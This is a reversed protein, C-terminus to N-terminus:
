EWKFLKVAAFYVIVGWILLVGIELRVQWLSLGEFAVKRLADNLYTLPMIRAVWQLWMPFVSISFFTGGILFQPLTVINALPPITSENKAIGSVVFGFGMFVFLGLFSLILMNFFTLWGHILTFGFFYKGLLIIVVATLLQFLVRSLMEGMVIYTRSIPTAFFRKLVLTNRLIFFTFAVGFVGSALLSFGLQGPLIFDITKYQRIESIDKKYDFPFDAYTQRGPYHANSVQNIISEAVAKFQPWQNNSSTTSKFTFIYPPNGSTNKQINIIGAIKGKQLADRLEASDTVPSLRINDANKFARYLDNTTDARSDVAVTYTKTLGSNGIFGFVLIFIFPFAFGFVVSSPSRFISRLSAKTVALMARLQSYEKMSFKQVVAFTISFAPM